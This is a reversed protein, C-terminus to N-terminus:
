WIKLVYSGEAAGASPSLINFIRCNILRKFTRPLKPITALQVYGQLHPTLDKEESACHESTPSPSTSSETKM